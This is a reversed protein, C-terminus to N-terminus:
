FSTLLFKFQFILEDIVVPLMFIISIFNERLKKRVKFVEIAAFMILIYNIPFVVEWNIKTECFRYCVSDESNLGYPNHMLILYVSLILISISSPRKFM